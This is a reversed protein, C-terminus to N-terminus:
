PSSQANGTPSFGFYADEFNPHSLLEERTGSLEIAGTRMVYTRDATELARTTNQEVVLITLGKSQLEKLTDYVLDIVLPALGLSPEDLLILKPKAMLARGIALQQQEGGSLKGAPLGLRVGLVPFMEAIRKLDEEIGSRDNRITAGLRLNEGVTLTGFIHRGEPVLALGKRAVSETPLGLLSNGDLLVNGSKAPVVGMIAHLLTSKGAGNPGIVSVVEGPIVEISVGRLAVISGYRVELHDVTLLNQENGEEWIPV